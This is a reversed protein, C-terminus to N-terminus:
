AQANLLDHFDLGDTHQTAPQHPGADRLHAGRGAVLRDDALHVVDREVLPEPADPLEEVIADRFPLHGGLSAVGREAFRDPVVVNAPRFSQSRMM